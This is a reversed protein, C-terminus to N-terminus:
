GSQVPEALSSRIKALWETSEAARAKATAIGEKARTIGAEAQEIVGQRYAEIADAINEGAEAARLLDPKAPEMHMWDNSAIATALQEHMFGKFREHEESPPKWNAVKDLMETMREVREKSLAVEQQWDAMARRYRATARHLTEETTWGKAEAALAELDAIEGEHYRLSSPEIVEPIPEGDPKDRLDVLFARSCRWVYDEFTPDGEGPEFISTYYNM